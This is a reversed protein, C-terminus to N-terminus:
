FCWEASAIPRCRMLWVEVNLDVGDHHSKVAEEGYIANLLMCRKLKLWFTLQVELRDSDYLAIAAHDSIDRWESARERQHRTMLHQLVLM